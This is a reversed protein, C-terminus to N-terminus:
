QRVSKHLDNSAEAGVVFGILLCLAGLTGAIWAGILWRSPDKPAPTDTVDIVDSRELCIILALTAVVAAAMWPMASEMFVGLGTEPARM